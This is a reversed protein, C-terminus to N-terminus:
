DSRRGVDGGAHLSGVLHRGRHPQGRLGHELGDSEPVPEHVPHRRTARGRRRDHRLGLREAEYLRPPRRPRTGGHRPRRPPLVPPFVDKDNRDVAVAVTAVLFAAGAAAALISLRRAARGARECLDGRTRITLYTAGHYCFVLVVAVGALVTYWNFLDWFTGT